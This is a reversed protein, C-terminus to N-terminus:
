SRKRIQGAGLLTLHSLPWRFHQFIGKYMNATHRLIEIITDDSCVVAVLLVWDDSMFKKTTKIRVWLRFLLGLSTLVLFVIANAKLAQGRMDMAM